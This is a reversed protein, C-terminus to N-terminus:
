RRAVCSFGVSSLTLDLSSAASVSCAVKVACGVGAAACTVMASVGAREFAGFRVGPFTATALAAALRSAVEPDAVEPEAAEPAILLECAGAGRSVGGTALTADDVDGVM